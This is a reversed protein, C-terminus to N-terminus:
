ALLLLLAYLKLLVTMVLISYQEETSIMDVKANLWTYMQPHVFDFKADISCTGEETSLNVPEKWFIGCSSLYGFELTAHLLSYGKMCILFLLSILDIFVCM